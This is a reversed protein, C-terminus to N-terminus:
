ETGPKLVGGNTTLPQAIGDVSSKKKYEEVVETVMENLETRPIRGNNTHEFAKFLLVGLNKLIEDEFLNVNEEHVTIVPLSKKFDILEDFQGKETYFELKFNDSIATNNGTAKHNYVYLIGAVKNGSYLLSHKSKATDNKYLFNYKPKGNTMNDKPLCVVFSYSGDSEIYADDTIHFNDLPEGGGINSKSTM